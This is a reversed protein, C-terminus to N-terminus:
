SFARELASQTNEYLIILMSIIIINAYIKKNVELNVRRPPTRGIEMVTHLLLSCNKRERQSLSDDCILLLKDGMM